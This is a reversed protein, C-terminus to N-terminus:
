EKGLIIKGCNEVAFDILGQISATDTVNGQFAYVKGEGPLDELTKKASEMRSPNVGNIVVNLGNQRFLKAMEFGLGRTSGTIVVTKM